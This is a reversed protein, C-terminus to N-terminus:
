DEATWYKSNPYDEMNIGIAELQKKQSDNIISCFFGGGSCAKKIKDPYLYLVTPEKVEKVSLLESDNRINVSDNIVYYELIRTPYNNSIGRPAYRPPLYMIYVNCKRPKGWENSHNITDCAVFMRTIPTIMQNYGLSESFTIWDEYTKCKVEDCGIINKHEDPLTNLYGIYKLYEEDYKCGNEDCGGILKKGAHEKAIKDLNFTLCNLPQKLNAGKLRCKEIFYRNEGYVATSEADSNKVNKYLKGNVFLTSGQPPKTVGNSACGYVIALFLFLTIQKLFSKM